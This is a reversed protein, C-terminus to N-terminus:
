APAILGLDGVLVLADAEVDERSGIWDLLSKLAQVGAARDDVPAGAPFLDSAVAHVIRAAQAPQHRATRQKEANNEDGRSCAAMAGCVLVVLVIALAEGIGGRRVVM